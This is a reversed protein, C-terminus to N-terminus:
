FSPACLNALCHAPLRHLLCPCPPACKEGDLEAKECKARVHPPVMHGEAHAKVMEAANHDHRRKQEAMLKLLARYLSGQKRVIMCAHQMSEAANSTNHGHM